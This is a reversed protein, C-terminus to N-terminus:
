NESILQNFHKVVSAPDDALYVSSIVALLDAGAQLIPLCNEQTIGGIAVVPMNYRQKAMQLTAPTAITTNTKSKSPSMAGFAIYDAGSSVAVEARQLDNYCSVGILMDNGVRTRAVACTADERGLHVGDSKLQLALDIDDNIFFLTAYQNCLAQLQQAEALKQQSDAQKNRYQLAVIGAQLIAETRAFLDSFELRGHETIVYLGKSIIKRSM